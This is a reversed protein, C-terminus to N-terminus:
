HAGLGSENELVRYGLGPEFRYDGCEGPLVLTSSQRWSWLLNLLAQVERTRTQFLHVFFHSKGHTDICQCMYTHTCVLTHTYTQTHTGTHTCWSGPQRQGQNLDLCSQNWSQSGQVIRRKIRSQFGGSWAMHLNLHQCAPHQWYSPNCSTWGIVSSRDSWTDCYPFSLWENYKERNGTEPLEFEIKM